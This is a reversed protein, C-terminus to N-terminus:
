TDSDFIAKLVGPKIDDKVMEQITTKFFAYVSVNESPYHDKLNGLSLVSITLFDHEYFDHIKQFAGYVLHSWKM